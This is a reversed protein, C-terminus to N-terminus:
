RQTLECGRGANCKLNTPQEYLQSQLFKVHFEKVQDSCIYINKHRELSIKALIEM